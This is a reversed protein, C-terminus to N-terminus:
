VRALPNSSRALMRQLNLMATVESEKVLKAEQARVPNEVQPGQAKLTDDPTPGQTPLVGRQQLLYKLRKLRDSAKFHPGALGESKLQEIAMLLNKLLPTPLVKLLHPSPAKWEAIATLIQLILEQRDKPELNRWPPLSRYSAAENVINKSPM